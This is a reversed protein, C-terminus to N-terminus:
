LVPLLKRRWYMVNLISPVSCLDKVDDQFPMAIFEAFDVVVLARRRSELDDSGRELFTRWRPTESLNSDSSSRVSSDPPVDVFEGKGEFAATPAVSGTALASFKGGPRAAETFFAPVMAVTM